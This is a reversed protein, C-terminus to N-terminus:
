LVRRRHQMVRGVVVQDDMALAMRPLHHDTNLFLGGSQITSRVRGGFLCCASLDAAYTTYDEVEYYRPGSDAAVFTLVVRYTKGARFTFPEFFTFGLAGILPQFAHTLLTTGGPAQSEDYIKLGTMNTSGANWIASNFVCDETLGSIHLGRENTTSAYTTQNTYASGIYTGDGFRLLIPCPDNRESGTSWGNTTTLGMTGRQLYDSARAFDGRYLVTPYNTTPAGDANNIVLFYVVGRVLEYPTGFTAKVWKNAASTTATTSAHATTGPVTSSSANRLTVAVSGGTGAIASVFFLADTLTASVPSVFRLAVADGASGYTYASDLPHGTRGGNSTAGLVYARQHIARQTNAPM